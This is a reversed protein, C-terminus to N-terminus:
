RDHPRCAHFITFPTMRTDDAGAASTQQINPAGRRLGLAPSRSVSTRQGWLRRARGKLLLFSCSFLMVYCKRQQYSKASQRSYKSVLYKSQAPRSLYRTLVNQRHVNSFIGESARQVTSLQMPLLLPDQALLPTWIRQESGM